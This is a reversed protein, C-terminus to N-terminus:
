ACKRTGALPSKHIFAEAEEAPLPPSFYYGQTKDCRLAQLMAVQDATEIGEAILELGLNHALMVIAHVVAAYNRQEGMLGIFARDIKIGDLHFRHLCNLSSYGSGFDDLLLRVGLGRLEGLIRVAGETEVVATETLELAVAAPTVGTERLIAAVSEVLLPDRLQRASLNVSVTLGEGGRKARWAVLKECAEGLVRLGIPCILGTEEALPVFEAPSVRGREPHQWRVLAEFGTLEGSELSVIPQYHVVLEDREVARRLENEMRLRTGAADHMSPDFVAYCAKGASKAHYMAADADRVIDDLRRYSPSGHAIGISVTTFVEHGGLDIPPGLASLIRAAAAEAAAPRAPLGDLLITFEDGGLRAVAYAQPADTAPLSAMADLLTRAMTRLLRDGAPHGLSDNVLKFRDLDLFLIAFRHDVDVKARRLCRALRKNFLLRNPLGTLADHLSDHRLRAQVKKRAGVEAELSRYSRELDRTREQVRLELDRRASEVAAEARKADDIDTCTGVWQVVRGDADRMALGRGLHWRYEGDARRLRYEVEFPEGTSLSRAWRARCDELDDPHIVSQWGSDHSLDPALGTYQFWRMNLYDNKGDAPATWVIQPMADALFRYKGVVRTLEAEAARRDEIEERLHRNAEALEATRDDVREELSDRSARLQEAALRHVRRSAAWTLVITVLLLASGLPQGRHSAIAWVWSEAPYDVGLIAEVKGDPGRLPYYASVWTGWRDTVPVDDFTPRGNFAEFLPENPDEFQEGVPTRLERAEDYAGNGNYDTESDVLFIVRGDPLRRCTYLDAITPNLALWERQTAILSLYTPDGASVDNALQAHGGRTLERAYTPALGEINHRLGRRARYGAVEALMAAGLTLGVCLLLPWGGKTSAGQRRLFRRAALLGAGVLLVLLLTDLRYTTLLNLLAM